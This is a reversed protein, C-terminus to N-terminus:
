KFFYNLRLLDVSINSVKITVLDLPILTESIDINSICKSVM